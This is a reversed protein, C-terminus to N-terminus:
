KTKFIEKLVHMLENGKLDRAIVKGDKDILFNMPIIKIGYQEMVESKIGKLDSVQQWPLKDDEIAKLWSAKEIDLSIGIIKFGKPQFKNFAEILYPHERRCPSCWSAWFDILTYAGKAEELSIMKENTDPLNFLPVIHGLGTSSKSLAMQLLEKGYKTEKVSTALLDYISKLISPDANELNSKAIFASVLSKPNNKVHEVVIENFRKKILASQNDLDNRRNSDSKKLKFKEGLIEAGKKNLSDAKKNFTNFEDQANTGFAILPLRWDFNGTIRLIGPSLLFGGRFTKSPLINGKADKQSIGLVFPEIGSINGVFSFEGNFVQVSDIKIDRIKEGHGLYIWGNNHDRIKGTIIYQGVSDLSSNGGGKAEINLVSLIFFLGTVINKSLKGVLTFTAM